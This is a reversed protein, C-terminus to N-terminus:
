NLFHHLVQHKLAYEGSILSEAHYNQVPKKKYYKNNGLIWISDYNKSIRRNKDLTHTYM